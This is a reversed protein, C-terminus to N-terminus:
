THNAMCKKERREIQPAFNVSIYVYIPLLLCTKKFSPRFRLAHLFFLFFAKLDAGKKEGLAAPDIVDNRQRQSLVLSSTLDIVSPSFCAAALQRSVLSFPPTLIKWFFLLLFRYSIACVASRAWSPSIIFEPILPPFLFNFLCTFYQFSFHFHFLFPSLLGTSAHSISDHLDYQNHGGVPWVRQLPKEEWVQGALKYQVAFAEIPLGGNDM